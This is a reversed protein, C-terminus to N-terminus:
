GMIVFTLYLLAAMTEAKLIHQCGQEMHLNTFAVQSINLQDLEKAIDYGM